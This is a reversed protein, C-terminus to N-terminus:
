EEEESSVSIIKLKILVVVVIAIVIPILILLITLIPWGGEAQLVTKPTVTISTQNGGDTYGNKTVSATIVISVQEATQPADFAFTCIGTTDTTKTTVSFNGNEASMTVVAGAVPTADEKCTVNVIVNGSEGSEVTPASIQIYFTRPNVTIELLSQGQAYGEKTAQATISISSQENVPPATFVFTVNGYVDTLGTNTSLNGNEAVVTVEAEFISTMDYEIHVTVNCEAESITSSPVSIIQVDLTKPEISIITQGMGNMYDDKTATAIINVNLLTTTKPATFVLSLIGNSDTTGTESSLSGDSSSIAVSANSVPEEGSKVNILIEAAEESKIANPNATIQVSLFPLVKLYEYNSGDTFGTKSGCAVIRVNANETIEPATFTTVFYGSANTLGSSETFNGGKVSFMTVTANEVATAGYTVYAMISVQEGEYVTSISLDVSIQLQPLNQVNITTVMTNNIAGYDDMVTLTANYTGLSSYKHTFVSLTTWSSNSGDGFDFFYRDVRGDSDFSNAAFFMVEENPQVLAKDSQLIATPPTNIIGIPKSLFFIFDLNVGDGGVRNGQGNPNLSEHYPGSKDGWYNYEANVTANILVNMGMENGYIDNFDAKHSGEDYLIGIKNYSVSNNTIYTSKTSSIYVGANDNSSVINDVITVDTANADIRIGNQKNASIMNQSINVSSSENGTLFIGNGNALVTNNQITVQGNGTIYIGNEQNEAILTNQVTSEGNTISIGSKRCLSISSNEITLEGDAIAIGNQCLSITSDELAVNGNDVFVGNEAYAVFCGILVSEEMGNFTISKWDGVEPQEKNSTFTIAKETGNAYLKGSIILSFNGGFKVEVGPELTLTANSYVIVNQSVVFPSDVLTWITDQKIPGEVYTANAAPFLTRNSFSFIGLAITLLIFLMELQKKMNMCGSQIQNRLIGKIWAQKFM